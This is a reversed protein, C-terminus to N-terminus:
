FVGSMVEVIGAIELSVKVESLAPTGVRNRLSNALAENILTNREQCIVVNRGEYFGTLEILELVLNGSRTLSSRRLRTMSM